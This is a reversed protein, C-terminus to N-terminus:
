GATGPTAPSSPARSTSARVILQTGLTVATPEASGDEDLRRLMRISAEGAADMAVRITTLAPTAMAASAIDDVGVVSIDDPVSLGLESLSYQIGLAMLDNYAVVATVGAHAITAGAGVGGDYTPAFPGLRVIEVRLRRAQAELLRRRESNSWSLAPGEAYAIRRHGLAVLHEMAQRVGDTSDVLVASVGDFRRNVLVLRTQSALKTLEEAGLRSSCLVLGDVQRLLRAVIERERDPSEDTGALLVAQEDIWAQAQAAKVFGPFVPNAVDPVVVGITNTKGTILARAANNPRYGLEEAAEAVRRRTRASVREPENFARSVTSPDLGLRDAVSQLTAVM